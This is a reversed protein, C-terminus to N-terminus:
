QEDDSQEIFSVGLCAKGEYTVPTLQLRYTRNLHKKHNFQIQDFVNHNTDLHLSSLNNQKNLNKVQIKAALSEEEPM